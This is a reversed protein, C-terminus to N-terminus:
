EVNCKIQALQQYLNFRETLNRQAAAILREAREPDSKKLM